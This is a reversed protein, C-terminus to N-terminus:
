DSDLDQDIFKLLVASREHGGSFQNLLDRLRLNRDRHFLVNEKLRECARSQEHFDARYKQLAPLQLSHSVTLTRVQQELQLCRQSLEDQQQLEQDFLTNIATFIQLGDLNQPTFSQVLSITRSYRARKLETGAASPRLCFKQPPFPRIYTRHHSPHPACRASSYCFKKTM